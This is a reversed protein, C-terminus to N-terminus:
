NQQIEHTLRRDRFIIPSQDSFSASHANSYKAYDAKKMIKRFIIGVFIEVYNYPIQFGVVM